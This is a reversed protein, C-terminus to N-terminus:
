YGCGNGGPCKVSNWVSCGGSAGAILMKKRVNNVLFFIDTSGGGSGSCSNYNPHKSSRGGGNYGGDVASSTSYSGQGGVIVIVETTSYLRFIGRAYGGLGSRQIGCTGGQAGWAEFIYTGRKLVTSQESKTFNFSRILQYNNM